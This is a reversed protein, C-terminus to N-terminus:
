IYPLFLGAAPIALGNLALGVIALTRKHRPDQIARVALLIGLIAAVVAVRTEKENGM